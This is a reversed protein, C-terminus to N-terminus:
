IQYIGELFRELWDLFNGPLWRRQELSLCICDLLVLDVQGILVTTAENLKEHLTVSIQVTGDVVVNNSHFDQGFLFPGRREAQHDIIFIIILSIEDNFLYYLLNRHASPLVIKRGFGYSSVPRTTGPTEDFFVAEQRITAIMLRFQLCYQPMNCSDNGPTPHGM